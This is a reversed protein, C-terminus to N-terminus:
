RLLIFIPTLTKYFLIDYNRLDHQAFLANQGHRLISNLDYNFYKTQCCFFYEKDGKFHM